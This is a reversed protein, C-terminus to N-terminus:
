RTSVLEPVSVSTETDSVVVLNLFELGARTLKKKRRHIIGTPRVLEPADLPISVLRGQEM